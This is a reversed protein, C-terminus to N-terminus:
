KLKEEETFGSKVIYDRLSDPLNEARIQQEVYHILEKDKAKNSNVIKEAYETGPEDEAMIARRENLPKDFDETAFTLLKSDIEDHWGKSRFRGPTMRGDYHYWEKRAMVQIHGSEILRLVDHASFLSKGRKYADEIAEMNPAWVVSHGFCYAIIPLLNYRDDGFEEIHYFTNM